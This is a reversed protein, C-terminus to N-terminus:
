MLESVGDVAVYDGTDQPPRHSDPVRVARLWAIGFGRAADLVPISDDVFLTREPRFSERSKFRPWFAAHEKPAGFDHTSYCVDFHGTLQVRENKIALTEPHANTLLILRKGCRELRALFDQAGPLYQVQALAARKLAAIDLGLERSWYEICYWDMTGRLARFKPELVARSQAESMGTAHALRMPVHEHWFWNDFRLDLLTGDMDLLVTDISSWDLGPSQPM